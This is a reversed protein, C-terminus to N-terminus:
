LAREFPTAPIVKTEEVPINMEESLEPLKKEGYIDKGYLTTEQAVLILEKVGGEALEKAEKLLQEMPVSRYDGRM